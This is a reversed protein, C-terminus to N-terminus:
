PNDLDLPLNRCPRMHLTCSPALVDPTSFSIVAMERMAKTLTGTKTQMLLVGGLCYMIKLLAAFLMLQALAMSVLCVGCFSSSQSWSFVGAATVLLILVLCIVTAAAAASVLVFFSLFMNLVLVVGVVIAHATLLCSFSLM